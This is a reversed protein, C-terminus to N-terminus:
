FAGSNAMNPTPGYLKAGNLTAIAPKLLVGMKWAIAGREPLGVSKSSM